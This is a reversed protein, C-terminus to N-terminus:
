TWCGDGVDIHGELLLIEFPNREPSYQFKGEKQTPIKQIQPPLLFRIQAFCFHIGINFNNLDLCYSSWRTQLLLRGVSKKSLKLLTLFAM